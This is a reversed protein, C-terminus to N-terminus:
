KDDFVKIGAEYVKTVEILAERSRGSAALVDARVMCGAITASATDSLSM